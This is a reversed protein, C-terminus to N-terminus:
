ERATFVTIPGGPSTPLEKTDQARPKLRLPLRPLVSTNGHARTDSDM